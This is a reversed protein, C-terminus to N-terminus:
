SAIRLSPRGRVQPRAQTGHQHALASCVAAILGSFIYAAGLGNGGTSIVIGQMVLFFIGLVLWPKLVAKASWLGAIAAGWALVLPISAFNAAPEFGKWAVQRILSHNLELGIAVLLLLTAAVRFYTNRM